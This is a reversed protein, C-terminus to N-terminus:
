LSYTYNGVSSKLSKRDIFMVMCAHYTPFHTVATYCDGHRDLGGM